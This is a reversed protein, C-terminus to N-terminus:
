CLSGADGVPTLMRGHGCPGQLEQHGQTWGWHCWLVASGTPGWSLAPPTGQVQFDPDPTEETSVLQEWTPMERNDWPLFLRVWLAILCYGRFARPQKLPSNHDAWPAITIQSKILWKSCKILNTVQMMETRVCYNVAVLIFFLIFSWKSAAWLARVLNRLCSTPLSKQQPFFLVFLFSSACGFPYWQLDTKYQPMHYDIIWFRPTSSDKGM